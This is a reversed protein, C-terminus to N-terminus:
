DLRALWGTGGREGAGDSSHGGRAWRGPRRPSLASSPARVRGPRVRAARRAQRDSPEGDARGKCSPQDLPRCPTLPDLKMELVGWGQKVDDVFGRAEGEWAAVDGTSAFPGQVSAYWADVNPSYRPPRTRRLCMRDTAVQCAVDGSRGAVHELKGPAWSPHVVTIGLWSCVLLLSPAGSPM